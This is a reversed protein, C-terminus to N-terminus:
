LPVGGVSSDKSGLLLAESADLYNDSYHLVYVILILPFWVGKTSGVDASTVFMRKRPFGKSITRLRM